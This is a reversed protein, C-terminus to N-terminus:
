PEMPKSEGARRLAERSRKGNSKGGVRMKGSHSINNLTTLRVDGGVETRSTSGFVIEGIGAILNLSGETKLLGDAQIKSAREITLVQKAEIASNSSFNVERAAYLSVDSGSIIRGGVGAGGTLASITIGNNAAVLANPEQMTFSGVAGGKIVGNAQVQGNLVLNGRAGLSIDRESALEGGSQEITGAAGIRLDDRSTIGGGTRIDSFGTVVIAKKSALIGDIAVDGGGFVSIDENSRNAGALSM